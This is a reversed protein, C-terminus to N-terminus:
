FISCQKLPFVRSCLETEADLCWVEPSKDKAYFCIKYKYTCFSSSNIGRSYNIPASRSKLELNAREGAKEEQELVYTTKDQNPSGFFVITNKVVTADRYCQGTFDASQGLTRISTWKPKESVLDLWCVSFTSDHGGMNYLVNNLM